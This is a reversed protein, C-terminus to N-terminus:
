PATDVSDFRARARGALDVLPIAGCPGTPAPRAAGGPHMFLGIAAVGAAGTAAIEGMREAAVGGIALVPVRAARVVAELGALGLWRDAGPKSPSPFVTGAILFDAGAARVAEDPHHVSRGILFAAPALRRADAADISDGRLHVGDAGCALAVDIRDNVLIRTRSGRVAELLSTVLSALEAADLDRERVQILDIGAAAAFRAQDVLCRRSAELPAGAGALRRRDTVLCLLV